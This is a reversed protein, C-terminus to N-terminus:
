KCTSVNHIVKHKILVFWVTLILGKLISTISIAWWIGNVGMGQKVLFIALPIRLYNLAISIIAPPITKGIGYFVGQMTIELMMFLQSYGM